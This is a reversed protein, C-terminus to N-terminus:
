HLLNELVWGNAVATTIEEDALQLDRLVAIYSLLDLHRCFGFLSAPDSAVYKTRSGWHTMWNRTDVMARCQEFPDFDWHDGLLAKAQGALEILRDRQTQSNAHSLRTLFVDRIKPDEDALAAKIADRGARAQAKSLPPDDRLARHYGESFAMLDLFRNELVVEPAGITSFLLNWVAGVEERLVFWRHMVDDPESVRALNLGLRYQDPQPQRPYPLPRRLVNVGHNDGLKLAQVYSPRRTCFTVFERLPELYKRELEEAEAPAPAAVSVGASVETRTVRYSYSGTEGAHVSLKAGDPLAFERAEGATM